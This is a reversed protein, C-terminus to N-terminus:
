SPSRIIEILRKLEDGYIVDYNFFWGDGRDRPRIRFENGAELRKAWAERETQTIM